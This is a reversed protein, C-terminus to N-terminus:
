KKKKNILFVGVLVVSGGIVDRWGFVENDLVGWFVAVIPILYTVSTATVPNTRKVLDNFLFVAFSTGVVSLITLYGLSKLFYPQTEITEQLGTAMLYIGFPIVMLSFAAGTIVISSVDKLYTRILNVSIGYCLTAAMVFLAYANLEFEGSANKFVLIAVGLFGIVVGVINYWKTKLQFFLVGLVLAFIPVTANLIGVASSSIYTQAIGFFISPLGNGVLGILLFFAIKKFSYKWLSKLVFPFLVLGSIVMRLGGLQDGRLVAVGNEDFIARKMLIFSSGWVLALIVMELIAIERNNLKKLL